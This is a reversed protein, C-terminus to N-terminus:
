ILTIFVTALVFTGVTKIIGICIIIIIIIIIVIIIHVNRAWLLIIVEPASSNSGKAAAM